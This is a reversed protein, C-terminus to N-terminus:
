RRRARALRHAVVTRRARGRIRRGRRPRRRGAATRGRLCCPLHRADGRCSTTSRCGSACHGATHAAPRGSREGGRRARCWTSRRRCDRAASGVAATRRGARARVGGVMRVAAPATPWRAAAPRRSREATGRAPPRSLSARRRGALASEPNRDAAAHQMDHLLAALTRAPPPPLGLGALWARLVARQRPGDLSQLAPLDLASGRLVAACTGARRDGGRGRACRPRVGRGARGDRAAGPWRQRLPPCCRSACTTATSAGTTTPRIKSGTCARAGHGLRGPRRPHVRAATARALRRAGFPGLPAMGAVARLGGGRLWQLLVTELQDDAHHATLLVEGPQLAHPSRPM